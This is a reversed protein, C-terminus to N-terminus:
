TRLSVVRKVLRQASNHDRKRPLSPAFAFHTVRFCFISIAALYKKEEMKTHLWGAFMSNFPNENGSVFHVWSVFNWPHKTFKAESKDPTSM